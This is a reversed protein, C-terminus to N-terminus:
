GNRMLDITGGHGDKFEMNDPSLATIHLSACEDYVIPHVGHSHHFVHKWPIAECLNVNEWSQLKKWATPSELFPGIYHGTHVHGNLIRVFTDNHMFGGIMEDHFTINSVSGSTSNYITWTTNGMRMWDGPMVHKNYEPTGKQYVKTTGNGFTETMTGNLYNSFSTENSEMGYAVQYIFMGVLFTALAFVTIREITKKNMM